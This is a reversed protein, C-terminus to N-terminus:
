SSVYMQLTKTATAPPRGNWLDEILLDSPVFENAHLLLLTLLARPKAARLPVVKGEHVAELPGLIRFEM